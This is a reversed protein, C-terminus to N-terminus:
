DRMEKVKPLWRAYAAAPDKMERVTDILRRCEELDAYVSEDSAPDHIIIYSLWPQHKDDGTRTEFGNANLKAAMLRQRYIIITDEMLDLYWETLTAPLPGDMLALQTPEPKTWGEDAMAVLMRGISPKGNYIHKGMEALKLLSAKRTRGQEGTGLHHTITIPKTM